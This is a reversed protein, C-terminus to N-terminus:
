LHSVTSTKHFPAVLAFSHLLCSFRSDPTKLRHEITIIIIITITTTTTTASTAAVSVM